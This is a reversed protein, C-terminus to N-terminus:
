RNERLFISFFELSELTTVSHPKHANFYTIDGGNLEYGTGDYTFICKGRIIYTIEVGENVHRDICEGKESKGLSVSIKDNIIGKPVLLRLTLNASEVVPQAKGRVITIDQQEPFFGTIPYDLCHAIDSLVAVSPSVEGTEIRHMTLYSVGIKKALEKMTLSADKRIKRIRNGVEM